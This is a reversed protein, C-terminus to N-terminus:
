GAALEARLGEAQADLWLSLLVLPGNTIQGDAVMASLQRRPILHGRIDEAENTAGHIGASGDPLDAIGVYHYIFECVAGPSPYISVAPFLRGVELAAEERAERRLADEVDEGADVRGAIPELLWPQPDGRLAPAFRFQEVVLLRDRLPDWPLLVAADGMLFAERTLAPSHGGRHLAHTLRHEEVAFYGSFRSQREVVHVADPGRPPVIGTGSPMMRAARLRSSAWIGIMPLRGRLHAVPLDPPAALIQRAIEAALEQQRVNTTWGTEAPAAIEKVGLVQHGDLAHASLGMVATYRMLAGNPVVAVADLRAEGPTLVPWDGADIGEGRGSLTGSLSVPTGTLALASMVAPAALPGTLAIM